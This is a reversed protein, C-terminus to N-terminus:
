RSRGLDRVLAAHHTPSPVGGLLTVHRGALLTRAEDVHAPLTPAPPADAGEPVPAAQGTTAPLSTESPESAGDDEDEQVVALVQRTLEQLAHRFDDEEGRTFASGRLPGLLSLQTELFAQDPLRLGQRRAVALLNGAAARLVRLIEAMGPEDPHQASQALLVLMNTVHELAQDIPHGGQESPQTEQWAWLPDIGSLQAALEVLPPLAMGPARFTRTLALTSHLALQLRLNPHTEPTEGEALRADLRDFMQWLQRERLDHLLALPALRDRRLGRLSHRAYRLAADRGTRTVVHGPRLSRLRTRGLDAHLALLHPHLAQAGMAPTGQEVHSDRASILLTAALELLLLVPMNAQRDRANVHLLLLAAYAEHLTPATDQLALLEAERAQREPVDTPHPRLAGPEPTVPNRAHEPRTILTWALGGEQLGPLVPVGLRTAEDLLLAAAHHLEGPLL